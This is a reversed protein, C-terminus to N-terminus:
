TLRCGGRMARGTQVKWSRCVGSCCNRRTIRLSGRASQSSSRSAPKRSSSHFDLAPSRPWHSHEESTDKGRGPTSLVEDIKMKMLPLPSSSIVENRTLSLM